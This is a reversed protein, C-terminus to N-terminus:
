VQCLDLFPDRIDKMLVPNLNAQNLNIRATQKENCGKLIQIRIRHMLPIHTLGISIRVSIYPGQANYAHAPNAGIINLRDLHMLSLLHEKSNIYFIRVGLVQPSV